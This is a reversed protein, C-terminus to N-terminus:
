LAKEWGERYAFRIFFHNLVTLLILILVTWNSLITYDKRGNSIGGLMYYFQAPDTKEYSILQYSFPTGASGSKRRTKNYKGTSSGGAIEILKSYDEGDVSYDFSSYEANFVGITIGHDLDFLKQHSFYIMLSMMVFLFEYSTKIWRRKTIPTPAEHNRSNPDTNVKQAASPAHKKHHDMLSAVFEQKKKNKDDHKM